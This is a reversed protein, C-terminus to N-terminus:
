ARCTALVTGEADLIRGEVPPLHDWEFHIAAKPTVRADVIAIGDVVQHTTTVSDGVLGMEITKAGTLIRGADDRVAGAGRLAYDLAAGDDDRALDRAAVPCRGGAAAFTDAGASLEVSAGGGAEDMHQILCAVVSHGDVFAASATHEILDPAGGREVVKSGVYRWSADMPLGSSSCIRRLGQESTMEDATFTIESAPESWGILCHYDDAFASYEVSSGPALATVISLNPDSTWGPPPSCRQVIVSRPILPETWWEGPQHVDLAWGAPVPERPISAACGAQALALAVICLVGLLNTRHNM